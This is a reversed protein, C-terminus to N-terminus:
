RTCLGRWCVSPGPRRRRPASSRHRSRREVRREEGRREGGVLLGVWADRDAVGRDAAAGADGPEGGPLHVEAGGVDGGAGGVQGASAAAGSELDRDVEAGHGDSVVDSVRPLVGSFSVPGTRAWIKRPWIVLHSSGAM